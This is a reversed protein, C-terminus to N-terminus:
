VASPSSTDGGESAANTNITENAASAQPAASEKAKGKASAKAKPAKAPEADSPETVLVPPPMETLHGRAILRRTYVHDPPLEVTRNPFLKVRQEDKSPLVITASGIPGQYLYLTM